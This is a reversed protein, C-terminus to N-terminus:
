IIGGDMAIIQGTLYSAGESALFVALAGAESAEGFRSLPINEIFEKKEDESLRSNMRTEFAGLAIANVRIGSPGLEKALAKTFSNVAGKAASYVTECSAGSIGWISSVNIIVGRKKRVMGPAALRSAYLATNINQRLIYDIQGPEMDTFLGFHAEGANNVLVDIGGTNREIKDFCDKAAEYDSFDALFYELAGNIKGLEGAARELQGIDSKGNLIVRDGNEAFAKAIGFGVGRSSGTIFINRPM